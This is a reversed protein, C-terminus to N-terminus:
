SLWANLGGVWNGKTMKSRWVGTTTDSKTKDDAELVMSDGLRRGRKGEL